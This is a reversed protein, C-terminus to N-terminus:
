KMSIQLNQTTYLLQRKRLALVHHGVSVMHLLPALLPLTVVPAKTMQKKLGQPIGRVFNEWSSASPNGIARSAFRRDVDTM